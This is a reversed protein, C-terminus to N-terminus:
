ERNGWAIGDSIAKGCSLAWKDVSQRFGVVEGLLQPAPVLGLRQLWVRVFLLPLAPSSFLRASGTRLPSGPLRSSRASPTTTTRQATARRCPKASGGALLPSRPLPASPAVPEIARRGSRHGAGRRSGACELATLQAARETPIDARRSRSNAIFLGLSIEM